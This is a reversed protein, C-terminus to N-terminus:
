VILKSGEVRGTSIDGFRNKYGGNGAYEIIVPYKVGARWDTPLYITHHVQTDSYNPLVEKIRIGAAAPKSQIAPVKLDPVVSRIDPSEDAPGM